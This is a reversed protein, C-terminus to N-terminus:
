RNWYCGSKNCAEIVQEETPIWKNWIRIYEKLIELRRNSKEQTEPPGLIVISGDDISNIILNVEYDDKRKFIRLELEGHSMGYFCDPVNKHNKLLCTYYLPENDINILRLNCLEDLEHMLENYSYSKKEFHYM